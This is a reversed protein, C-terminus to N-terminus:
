RALNRKRTLLKLLFYKTIDTLKHLRHLQLQSKSRGKEKKPTFLLHPTKKFIPTYHTGALDMKVVAVFLM